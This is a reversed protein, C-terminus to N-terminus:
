RYYDEKDQMGDLQAIILESTLEVENMRAIAREGFIRHDRWFQIHEFALRYSLQKFYGFYKGNRLEQANLRVSYTNLRAFIELTEADSIGHFVECVFGYQAIANRQELNLESFNRGAYDSDLNKSLRYKGDMFDLIASMRQQGDIVERIIRKNDESQVVRIFIPPVPLGQLLTDILFSRAATTWVGRRQFKPAIVLSDSARWTIFDLPTYTSREPRQM